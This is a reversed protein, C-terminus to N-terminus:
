RRATAAGDCVSRGVIVCAVVPLGFVIVLPAIVACALGVCFHMAAALAAGAYGRAACSRENTDNM